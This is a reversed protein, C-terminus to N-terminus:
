HGIEYWNSGGAPNVLTVSKGYDSAVLTFDAKGRLRMRYASDISGENNKFIIDTGASGSRKVVHIVQNDKGIFGNFTVIGSTHTLYVIDCTTVNYTYTGSTSVTCSSFSTGGSVAIGNTFEYDGNFTGSTVNEAAITSSGAGNVVGTFNVTGNFEYDGSFIGSVIENANHFGVAYVIGFLFSFSLIIGFGFKIGKLIDKDM